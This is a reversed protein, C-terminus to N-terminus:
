IGDPGIDLRDQPSGPLPTLSVSIEDQLQPDYQESVVLTMKSLEDEPIEFVFLGTTPLGPQVIKSALVDPAGGARQSQRYRRGSAGILTAARVPMTQRFDELKASVVVWMGSTDLEVAKGFQDYALVRAQKVTAVDIAFTASTVRESQPGATKIPGTLMAYPPTTTQLMALVLATMGLAFIRLLHGM